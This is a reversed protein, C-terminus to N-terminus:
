KEILISSVNQSSDCDVLWTVPLKASSLQIIKFGYAKISFTSGIKITHAVSARNDVMMYANNKFTMKDPSAQCAQEIQLRAGKYKILADAYAITVAGAGVDISGASTDETPVIAPSTTDNQAVPAVTTSSKMTSWFVLGIAIVVIIIVWIWLSKNNTM